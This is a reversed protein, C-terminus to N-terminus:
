TSSSPTHSHGSWTRPCRGVPQCSTIASKLRILATRKPLPKSHVRHKLLAAPPLGAEPLVVTFQFCWGNGEYTGQGMVGPELFMMADTMKSITPVHQTMLPVLADVTVM